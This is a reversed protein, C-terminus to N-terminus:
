ATKQRSKKGLEVGLLGASVCEAFRFLLMQHADASLTRLFANIHQQLIVQFLVFHILFLLLRPRNFWFLDDAPQVVPVGKVVDGREMINVAMRTIIVQLKTGVLLIVYRIEVVVEFDEDLSRKIYKQFNFKTSSQPALHAQSAALSSQITHGLPLTKHEYRLLSSVMIFGHRLTLYDVKPVSRVFQRFFCVQDVNCIKILVSTFCTFLADHVAEPSVIWILIPSKSWFSLHRRGFSTERAFRFRAPDSLPNQHHRVHSFQYEATKTELEWAKWRRMKLRGFAMTSICYLVHSVALVFIFIHLQHIADTSILPVKGQEPTVLSNLEFGHLKSMCGIQSVRLSRLLRRTSCSLHVHLCM